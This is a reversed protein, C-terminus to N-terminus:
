ATLDWDFMADFTITWDGLEDSTRDPTNFGTPRMPERLIEDDDVTLDHLTLAKIADHGLSLVGRSADSLFQTDHGTQDLMIPTHVTVSVSATVTAMGGDLQGQDFQGSDIWITTFIGGASMEFQQNPRSVFCTAPNLTTIQDILRATIAEMIAVPTTDIRAM